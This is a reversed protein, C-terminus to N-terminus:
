DLENKEQKDSSMQKQIYKNLYKMVENRQHQLPYTCFIKYYLGSRSNVKSHYLTVRLNLQM